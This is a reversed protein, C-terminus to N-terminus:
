VNTLSSSASYLLSSAVILAAAAEAGLDGAGEWCEATAPKRKM